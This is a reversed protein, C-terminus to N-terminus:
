KTKSNQWSSPFTIKFDEAQESELKYFFFDRGM